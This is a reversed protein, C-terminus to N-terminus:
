VGIMPTASAQVPLPEFVLEPLVIEWRDSRPKSGFDESEDERRREIIARVRASSCVAGAPPVFRKALRGVVSGHNDLIEWRQDRKSLWLPDGTNLAGIAKHVRHNPPYRGAFGLYVDKLTALVYQRALAPPPPPLRIPNRYLLSADEPLGDLLPHHGARNILILTERARTMAVYYLRRPSDRDEGAGVRDWSGDLVVVHKFELGKARHATLLMLGSPRRRVERGWEALWERFHQTPLEAGGTELEYQTLAERLLEWWRGPGQGELWNAMVATAILKTERRELWRILQQTERLGWFGPPEENALHVPIAHIECYSRLPELDRWARAIVGVEAWNWDPDLHALRRLEAMVAVAQTMADRGGPLVQVRGRGVPDREEWEGGPNQMRRKRDITIPHASKMRQTASEILLNAAAVIHASSRYNEILYAPKACYDSTFRRIFEVSAGDFAYINQDDDGVAFLSLRGEEDQRTRGALASILAYQDPGIDQYEDVLIWRFGALLRERQEDADEPPLDDGNILAVAQELVEKFLGENIDSRRDAFSVGVLRMALAHCTLVTVGRADNGILSALRTRIQVAAHRNYALALIGRPNERRARVLYAIRHVLVRTKGSGPGALVLVNTQTRDDAVIRQQVPNNLSEVIELWSEPTTQRAIEKERGPMWRRMFESRPRNFYDVVLRLADAMAKLGLQVYEAMVHIQIVQEDYHLRLPGFDAKLFNRKEQGLRITMAPRFVALGKSLRIVEQEHLWLLARDVLKPADKVQSRLLADGDIAAFLAGMKTEALLDVGRLDAPLRQLLHELIRKAAVRRLEATFDLKSWERQLTVSFMDADIRRIALSGKGSDEGRGDAAISRLIRLVKEPLAGAHGADKLQQSTLRLQIVSSEGSGLDPANERLAAILAVEIAASEAYRKESSRAVGKHVYATLVTDNSALGLRELDHLARRVGESNLGSVAMLEDTSIGDDPDAGILTEVLKLLRGRYEDTMPHRSLRARAQEVSEVRLSSPFVQVRNAERRLLEAEELWCIATRVRTDDTVSDRQFVDDEEEALIEGATAVVDGFRRNKRDLRRLSKLISQIERRTLRSRASMGFQSEVDEPTYLLICHASERDRGARGAEQLYNELSGPIDAHIVVRVDPKDIGMGFANTAAIVRLDGALFRTQADKKREPSLGAHFHGATLGKEQLYAAIEETRRRSACYVIAGGPTTQPLYQELIHFVDAFKTSPKAPVVSFDLNTRSAGGNFLVLTIGATKEFYRQIDLIVDPKATATLCLIPPIPEGRAKERIFRGVYRYDPRFDHGWKSLCHAEDLVWAGIERQALVDCLSRNRLQEPSVILIGIDGLRVRDLVDAREPMSLLGNLAACSAIGKAELGAVQDAMLAVLPSIVVTLAGTKDYRSLAPIQYCLSKGTGTPLIGLVHERRMAAEVIRRQLPRGAADAPEPRFDAFGFWRSLEKNPDHHQRCWGCGTDDCPTDRLARVVAAAGPFQHRVWPPMVSNGGSVSLWAIAYALEWGQRGLNGLNDRIQGRCGRGELIGELAARASADDPCRNHRITAFFTDLGSESPDATTLWHWALLLEADAALLAECQDRFLELALRADLEPDNLRGRKLQGKQYHKVLRHYPNRPFALPSLRLTDVVPLRLLRLDPKVAILHPVDFAKLNHGLLFGAGDAFRDLAVLAKGLDGRHHVFACGNDGRVAALKHIRGDWRGVELDLSLCRQAFDPEAPLSQQALSTM